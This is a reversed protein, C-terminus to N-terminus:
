QAMSWARELESLFLDGGNLPAVEIRLRDGHVSIIDIIDGIAGGDSAEVSQIDALDICSNRSAKHYCVRQDTVYAAETGDLQITADYYVVVSEGAELMGNNDLYEIAYADMQNGLQTGGTKSPDSGAALVLFSCLAASSLLHKNM